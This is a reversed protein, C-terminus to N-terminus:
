DCATGPHALLTSGLGLHLLLLPGAGCGLTLGSGLILTLGGAILIPHSMTSPIQDRPAAHDAPAASAPTAALSLGFTAVTVLVIKKLM